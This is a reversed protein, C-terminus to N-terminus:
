IALFTQDAVVPWFLTHSLHLCPLSTEPPNMQKNNPLSTNKIFLRDIIWSSCVSDPFMQGKLDLRVKCPHLISSICIQSTSKNGASAWPLSSLLESLRTSGQAPLQSGFLLLFCKHTISWATLPLHLACRPWSSLFGRHDGRDRVFAMQPM